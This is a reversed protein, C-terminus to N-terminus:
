SYEIMKELAKIFRVRLQDRVSKDRRAGWEWEKL